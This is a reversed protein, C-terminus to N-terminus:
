ISYNMRVELLMHIRILIRTSVENGHSDSDCIVRWRLVPITRETIEHNWRKISGETADIKLVCSVDEDELLM